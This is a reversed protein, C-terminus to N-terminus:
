DPSGVLSRKTSCRIQRMEQSGVGVFRLWHGPSSWSGFAPTWGGVQDVYGPELRGSNNVEGLHELLLGVELALELGHLAVAPLSHNHFRRSYITNHIHSDINRKVECTAHAQASCASM